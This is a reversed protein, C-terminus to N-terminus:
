PHEKAGSRYASPTVGYHETFRRHLHSKDTFDLAAAIEKLSDNTRLLREAALSLRRRLAFDPFSVGTAEKFRASFINRSMRCVAAAEKVSVYGPREFVMGVAKGIREHDAASLKEPAARTDAASNLSLLLEQLYVRLRLSSLPSGDSLGRWAGSITEMAARCSPLEAPRKEPPMSFVATWNYDPFERRREEALGEPSIVLVIVECPAEIVECGHPEWIGCLWLNWPKMDREFGQYYRRMRGRVVFGLELPYHMDYLTEQRREYFAHSLIVPREPSLNIKLSKVKSNDM